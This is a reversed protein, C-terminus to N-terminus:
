CTAKALRRVDSRVAGTCVSDYATAASPRGPAVDSAVAFCTIAKPSGQRDHGVRVRGRRGFAFAELRELAEEARRIVGRAEALFMEGPETLRLGKTSRDFLNVGLERELDRIQRGLPPQSVQLRAAARTVNKKKPLRSSIAFTGSGWIGRIM